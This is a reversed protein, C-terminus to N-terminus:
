FWSLWCGSRWSLWFQEGGEGAKWCGGHFLSRPDPDQFPGPCGNQKGAPPLLSAPSHVSGVQPWQVGDM